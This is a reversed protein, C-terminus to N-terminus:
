EYRLAVMPDVRTARRAPISCAALTMVAILGTVGLLVSPDTPLVGFLVGALLRTAGVAVVLGIAIGFAALRLGEQLLARLINGRQAGLAMRIGIERTRQTVLYSLVGYIGVASLLMALVAFVGILLAPFRRIFVSPSDAIITRLTIASNVLVNPDLSAVEARVAATLNSPDANARVVLTLDTDNSQFTSSYLVPTMPQDLAGLKEDGVVGVIEAVMPHSNFGFFFRHGVADEGPFLKDALTKNIILVLPAGSKDQETFFRGRILPIGMVQFYSPSADRTNAEPAQGPPLAPRGEVTFGTTGGGRLPTVDILGAGQVGPLSKIRDLLQRLFVENRKQDSYRGAPASIDIALLNQTEFGPNIQLLRVLSKMLLGAGTLLVLSLAIESVVLANRLGHQARGGATRTGEKLTDHLDLRSAQLAPVLGFVIGTLLSIALTFELVGLNPSLGRLYPMSARVSEPLRSFILNVGWQAWMLGLAGGSLSLISSETLVQRLLRWRTAGLALRVAIEKQRAEARALLLNAVNVCAILLVLGVAGLLAFLVPQVPGVIEEHLPVVRIGGGANADPYEAALRQALRTMEDQAQAITVGERLRGIVNVWHFTRRGVEDPSPNLPVWIQARGRKAFQFERPLIGTITYAEGNLTLSQGLIRPDSGFQGAWTEYSLLAIRAGGSRDEDARFARGLIPQVGLVDFFNSTVRAGYIRQPTGRGTLSFNVGTYGALESFVHNSAQWELLNPRSAEMQTFENAPRTEWLHVLREPARYPLSHFVAANVVTFIATNAGIGIALTFVAVLTFGPSKALMRWGYRIDQLVTEL